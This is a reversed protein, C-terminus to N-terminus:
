LAILIMTTWREPSAAIFRRGSLSPAIMALRDGGYSEGRRGLHTIQCMLAAGHRHMREAFQQFHPIIDDTGVNLQRFVNPSDIDVNSSGGFM